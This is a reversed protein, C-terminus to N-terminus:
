RTSLLHPRFDRLQRVELMSGLVQNCATKNLCVPRPAHPWLIDCADMGFLNKKKTTNDGTVLHNMIIISKTALPKKVKKMQKKQIGLGVKGCHGACLQACIRFVKCCAAPKLSLDEPQWQVVNSFSGM